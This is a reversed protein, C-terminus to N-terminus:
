MSECAEQTNHYKCTNVGQAAVKELYSSVHRRREERCREGEGASALVPHRSMNQQPSAFMAWAFPWPFWIFLIMYITSKDRFIPIGPKFTSEYYSIIHM